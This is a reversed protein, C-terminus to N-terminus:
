AARGQLIELVCDVIEGIRVPRYFVTAEAPLAVKETRSTVIVLPVRGALPGIKPAEAPHAMSDDEYPKAESTDWVILSPTTGTALARGADDATEMGLAEIGRERLEARVGARFRWDRGIVFVNPM